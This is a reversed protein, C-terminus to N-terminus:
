LDHIQGKKKKKGSKLNYNLPFFQTLLGRASKALWGEIGWSKDVSKVSGCFSIQTPTHCRPHLPLPNLPHFCGEREELSFTGGKWWTVSDFWLHTTQHSFYCLIFTYVIPRMCSGSTRVSESKLPKYSHNLLVQQMWLNQWTKFKRKCVFVIKSHDLGTMPFMHLKLKFIGYLNCKM